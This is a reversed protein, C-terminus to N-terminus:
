KSYVIGAVAWAGLYGTAYAASLWTNRSMRAHLVTSPAAAPVMMAAMMGAWMAALVAIHTTSVSATM